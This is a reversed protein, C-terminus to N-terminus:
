EATEPVQELRAGDTKEAPGYLANIAAMLTGVENQLERQRISLHRLRELNTRMTAHNPMDPLGTESLDGTMHRKYVDESISLQEMEMNEIFSVAGFLNTFFYGAEGSMLQKPNCYRNIFQLNSHLLPPNAQLVVYILVPLFDDASSHKDANAGKLVRFVAKSCAVICELKDSPTKKADVTIIHEQAAEFAQRADENIGNYNAELHHPELWRHSRIRKQLALDKSEDAPDAHFLRPYLRTMIHKEAGSLVEEEQEQTTGRWLPSTAMRDELTRYFDLILESLDDASANPQDTIKAVLTKIQQSADQQAPKRLPKLFDFQEYDRRVLSEISSKWGKITNGLDYAPNAGANKVDGASNSRRHSRKGKGFLNGLRQVRTPTARQKELAAMEPPTNTESKSFHQFEENPLNKWVCQSCYGEWKDSGFFGCGAKCKKLEMGELERVVDASRPPSGATVSSPSGGERDNGGDGNSIDQLKEMEDDGGDEVRTDTSESAESVSVVPVGSQTTRDIDAADGPGGDDSM